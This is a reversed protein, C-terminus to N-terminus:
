NISKVRVLSYGQRHGQRKMSHKRRRFKIIRVKPALAHKVVEVIVQNKEVSKSDFAVKNDKSMLLVDNFTFEKGEEVGIKDVKYVGGERMLYQRAGNSVIAYMNNVM